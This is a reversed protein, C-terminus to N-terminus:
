KAVAAKAARSIRREKWPYSVHGNKAIAFVAILPFGTKNCGSFYPIGRVKTGLLQSVKCLTPEGGGTVEEFAISFSGDADAGRGPDSVLVCTFDPWKHKSINDIVRCMNDVDASTFKFVVPTVIVNSGLFEFSRPSCLHNCIHIWGGDAAGEEEAECRSQFLRLKTELTLPQNVGALIPESVFKRPVKAYLIRTDDAKWEPEEEVSEVPEAPEVPEPEDAVNDRAVRVFKRAGKGEWDGVEVVVRDESTELAHEYVDVRQGNLEPRRSLNRLWGPRPPGLLDHSM